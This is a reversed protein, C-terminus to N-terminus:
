LSLDSHTGRASPCQPVVAEIALITLSRWSLSPCLGARWLVFGKGLAVSYKEEDMLERYACIKLCVLVITLGAGSQERAVYLGLM